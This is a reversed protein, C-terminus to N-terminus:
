PALKVLFVDSEGASQLDDGGLNMSGLFGGGLLINNGRDIAMATHCDPVACQEEADGFTDSWFLEGDVDLKFVFMDIDGDSQRQTPQFDVTGRFHGAVVSNGGGDVGLAVREVVQEPVGDVPANQMPYQKVWVTNGSPDLKAVFLDRGLNSRLTGTGFDVDGAFYGALTITGTSRVALEAPGQLEDIDGYSQVWAARGDPALKALFFDEGGTSTVTRDGFSVTGLFRGAVVVNGGADAAIADIRQAQTDGFSELWQCQGDRVLGVAINQDTATVPPCGGDDLALEGEFTAAFVVAAADGPIQAVKSAYLTTAEGGFIRTARTDSELAIVSFATGSAVELTLDAVAVMEEHSVVLWPTGGVLHHLSVTPPLALSWQPRGDGDLEAVFGTPLAVELPGAGFDLAGELTGAVRLRQPTLVVHDVRQPREDGARLSWLHETGDILDLGDFGAIIHCGSALWLLLVAVPAM